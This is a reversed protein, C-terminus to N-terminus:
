GWCEQIGPCDYAVAGPFRSNSILITGDIRSWARRPMKCGLGGHRVALPNDRCRSSVLIVAPTGKSFICPCDRWPQRISKGHALQGNSADVLAVLCLYLLQPLQRRPCGVIVGIWALEDAFHDLTMESSRVRQDLLANVILVLNYIHREVDPGLSLVPKQHKTNRRVRLAPETMALAM